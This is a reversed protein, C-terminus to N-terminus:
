LPTLPEKDNVKRDQEEVKHAEDKKAVLAKSPLETTHKIM